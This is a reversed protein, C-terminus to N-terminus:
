PIINFEIASYSFTSTTSSGVRGTVNYSGESLWLPLYGERSYTNGVFVTNNGIFVQDGSSTQIFQSGQIMSCTEIKLVKGAPVVITGMVTPTGPIFITFEQNIVQNFQLNGQGFTSGSIAVIIILLLKKM